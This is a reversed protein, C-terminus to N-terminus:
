ICVLVYMFVMHIHITFLSHSIIKYLIIISTHFHLTYHFINIYTYYIGWQQIYLPKIFLLLGWPSLLQPYNPKSTLVRPVDHQKTQKKKIWDKIYCKYMIYM